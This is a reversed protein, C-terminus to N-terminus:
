FENHITMELKSVDFGEEAASEVLYNFLDDDMTKTRSLLWLYERDPSGVLSWQYEGSACQDLKMVYYDGYFPRFFSVRLKGPGDIIAIGEAVEKEGTKSNVGQNIVELGDGNTQYYAMVDTLDREFRNPFKAIEYWFGEYKEIDFEDVTYLPQKDGGCGAMLMAAMIITFHKM